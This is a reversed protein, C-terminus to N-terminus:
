SWVRVYDITTVAPLQTQATPANSGVGILQSLVLMYAKNFPDQGAAATNELCLKGDYLIRIAEPTWELVYTHWNGVNTVLCNVNTAKPDQYSGAYHLFPIVRDWYQSYWEAIDIEGSYPWPRPGPDEPYMWIASQLGPLRSTPFRARVEFRGYAQTFRNFTNVTGATYTTFFDGTSSQCLFPRSVERAVLKLTGFSQTVNRTSDTYCANGANYGSGLTTQIHWKTGDLRGSFDDGFTCTWPTGDVKTIVATGCDSPVVTAGVAEVPAVAAATLLGTGLAAVVLGVLGKARKRVRFYM